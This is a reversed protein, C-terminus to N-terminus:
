TRAPILWAEDDGWALSWVTGREPAPEAGRAASTLEGLGSAHLRVTREAGLFAVDVVTAQLLDGAAVIRLNEPRVVVVVDAGTALGPAGRGRRAGVGEVAV